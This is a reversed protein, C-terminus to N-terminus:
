TSYVRVRARTAPLMWMYICICACERERERETRVSSRQRIYVRARAREGHAGFYYLTLLLRESAHCSPSVRQREADSEDLERKRM